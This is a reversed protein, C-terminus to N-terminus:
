KSKVECFVFVCHICCHIKMLICTILRRMDVCGLPSIMCFPAPCCPIRPWVNEGGAMCVGWGWRPSWGWSCSSM